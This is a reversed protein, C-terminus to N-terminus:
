RPTMSVVSGSGNPTEPRTTEAPRTATPSATRGAHRMVPNPRGRAQRHRIGRGVGRRSTRATAARRRGDSPLDVRQFRSTRPDFRFLADAGFDSVWVIDREDVYVAYPMPTTGPLRWERWRKTRPDYRALKGANWETVWARSRSDTWVRRAGQDRTPPQIVKRRARRSTSAASSAAPSPRTTCPVPDHRRCATPAQGAPRQSCACRARAPIWGASSAARGQSGSSAASTSPPPTSTRGGRRGRSRIAGSRARARTSASSRM